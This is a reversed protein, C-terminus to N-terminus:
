SRFRITFQRSYQLVGPRRRDCDRAAHRTRWRDRRRPRVGPQRCVDDDAHHHRQRVARAVRQRLVKRQAFRLDGGVGERASRRSSPTAGTCKLSMGNARGAGDAAAHLHRPAGAIRAVIIISLTLTLRGWRPIWQDDVYRSAGILTLVSTLLQTLNQKCGHRQHQRYRQRGPEDVRRARPLRLVEAAASRVEGRGGPSARLGDAPRNGAMLYQMLVPLMPSSISGTVCPSDARSTSILRQGPVGSAEGCIRSSRRPPWGLIKPGLVMSSGDRDRGRAVVVILASRHPRLYGLLRAVPGQTRPKRRRCVWVAWQGRRVLCRRRPGRRPSPRRQTRVM